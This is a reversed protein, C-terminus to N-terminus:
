YLILLYVLYLLDLHWTGDIIINTMGRNKVPILEDIAAFIATYEGGIALGTLFRCIYFSSQSYTFATMIISIIYIFVTASFLSKRGYINSLVAFLAAGFVCGLLYFSGAQAIGLDTLNLQTKLVGFLVSLLSVECGDIVLSATYLCNNDKQSSHVLHDENNM